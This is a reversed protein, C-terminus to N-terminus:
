LVRRRYPYLIRAVRGLLDADTAYDWIQLDRLMFAPRTPPGKGLLRVPVEAAKAAGVEVYVNANDESIDALVLMANTVL